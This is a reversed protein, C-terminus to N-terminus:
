FKCLILLNHSNFEPKDDHVEELIRDPTRPEDRQPGIDPPETEGSQLYAAKEGRHADGRQEHGGDHSDDGVAPNRRLFQQADAVEDAAPEEDGRGRLGLIRRQVAAHQQAHHEVHRGDRQRVGHGVVGKIQRFEVAYLVERGDAHPAGHSEDGGHPEDIQHMDSAHLDFKCGPLQIDRRRQREHQGDVRERQGCAGDVAAHALLRPDIRQSQAGEREELLLAHGDEEDERHQQAGRELDGIGEAVTIDLIESRHGLIGIRGDHFMRHDQERQRLHGFREADQQNGEEEPTESDLLHHQDRHQGPHQAEAEEAHAVGTRSGHEEDERHDDVAHREVEEVDRPRKEDFLLGAALYARRRLADKHNHGVAEAGEEPRIGRAGHHIGEMPGIRPEDERSVGERHSDDECEDEFVLVVGGFHLPHAM